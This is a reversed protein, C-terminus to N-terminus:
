PTKKNSSKKKSYFVKNEEIMNQTIMKITKRKEFPEFIDHKVNRGRLFNSIKLHLGFKHTNFHFFDLKM